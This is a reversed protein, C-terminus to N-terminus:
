IEEIRPYMLISLVVTVLFILEAMWLVSGWIGWVWLTDTPSIWERPNLIYIDKLYRDHLIILVYYFVFPSAYAM